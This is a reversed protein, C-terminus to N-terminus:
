FDSEGLSPSYGSERHRKRGIRSVEAPYSATEVPFDLPPCRWSGNVIVAQLDTDLGSFFGGQWAPIEAPSARLRSM